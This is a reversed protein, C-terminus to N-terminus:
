RAQTTAALLGLFEVDPMALGTGCRWTGVEVEAPCSM